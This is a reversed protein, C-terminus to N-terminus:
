SRVLPSFGFQEDPILRKELAFDQLRPKVVKEYLKSLTNLLSLYSTPKNRPKGPKHIGFIIAEKLQAPFTCNALLCNFM